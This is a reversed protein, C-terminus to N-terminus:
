SEDPRKFKTVGQNLKYEKMLLINKTDMLHKEITKKVYEQLYIYYDWSVEHVLLALTQKHIQKSYVQERRISALLKEVSKEDAGGILIQLFKVQQLKYYILRTIKKLIDDKLSLDVLV